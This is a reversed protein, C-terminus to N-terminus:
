KINQTIGSATESAKKLLNSLTSMLKSLRDMAMQLRLSEMEGMESLSDLKSKVSEKAKNVDDRSVCRSARWVAILVLTGILGLPLLRARRTRRVRATDLHAEEALRDQAETLADGVRSWLELLTIGSDAGQNGRDGLDSRYRATVNAVGAPLRAGAAGDGFRVSSAGSKADVSLVFHRDEPGSDALSAVRTWIVGDIELTGDAPLQERM